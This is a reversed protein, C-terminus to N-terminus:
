LLGKCCTTTAAVYMADAQCISVHVNTAFVYFNDLQWEVCMNPILMVLGRLNVKVVKNYNDGLERL